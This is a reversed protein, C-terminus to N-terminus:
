LFTFSSLIFFYIIRNLFPHGNVKGGGGGGTLKLINYCYQYMYINTIFLNINNDNKLM